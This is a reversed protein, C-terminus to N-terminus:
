GRGKRNLGKVDDKHEDEDKDEATTQTGYCGLVLVVVLV